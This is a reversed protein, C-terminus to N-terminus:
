WAKEGQTKSIIQDDALFRPHRVGGQHRVGKTGPKEMRSVPKPSRPHQTLQADAEKIAEGGPCPHTPLLALKGGSSAAVTSLHESVGLPPGAKHGRSFRTVRLMLVQASLGMSM